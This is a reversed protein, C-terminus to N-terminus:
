YNRGIIIGGDAMVDNVAALDCIWLFSKSYKSKRCRTDCIKPFNTSKPPFWLLEQIGLIPAM